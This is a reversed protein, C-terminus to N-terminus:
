FPRVIDDSGRDIVGVLGDEVSFTDSTAPDTLAISTARLITFHDSSIDGTSIAEVANSLRLNPDIASGDFATSAATKLTYDAGGGAVIDGEVYLAGPLLTDEAFSPPTEENGGPFRNAGYSVVANLWDPDDNVTEPFSPVLAGNTAITSRLQYLLYPNGWPDAPWDVISLDRNNIQFNETAGVLEPLRMKVIGSRLGRNFNKRSFSSGLYPGNWDRKITNISVPFESLLGFYDLAPIVLDEGLLNNATGELSNDDAGPDQLLILNKAQTLYNLKPYFIIDTEVASLATAVQHTEGIAAKQVNRTYIESVAIVSIGSLLAILASVIVIEILTFGRQTGNRFQM